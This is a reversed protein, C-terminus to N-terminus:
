RFHVVVDAGLSEAVPPAEWVTYGNLNLPQRALNGVLDSGLRLATRDSLPALLGLRGGIAWWPAWQDLGGPAEGSARMQGAQVLACAFLPGAHACPALTVVALWSSARGGGRAPRSAPADVRGELSVSADRWRVAAGLRAGVALAPAVGASGVVGAIGDFTIPAGEPLPGPEPASDEEAGPAPAVTPPPEEPAPPRETVPPRLVPARLLSQPDIAIAIALAAADLLDACAGDVHLERTGYEIGQEDVLRIRAVFGSKDAPSMSAVIAQKAWAFFPDYGVREAVAARLAREDPCSEAGAPRSYVLRASPRANATAPM